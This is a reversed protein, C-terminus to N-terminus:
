TAGPYHQVKGAAGTPVHQLEKLVVRVRLYMKIANLLIFIRNAVCLRQALIKEVFGCEVDSISQPELGFLFVVQNPRRAKEVVEVVLHKHEHQVFEPCRLGFM